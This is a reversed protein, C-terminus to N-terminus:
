NVISFLVLHAAKAGEDQLASGLIECAPGIKGNAITPPWATTSLGDADYTATSTKGTTPVRV